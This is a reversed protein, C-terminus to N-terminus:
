YNAGGTVTVAVSLRPPPGGTLLWGASRPFAGARPWRLPEAPWCEFGFISARFEFCHWIISVWIVLVLFWKSSLFRYCDMRHATGVRRTTRTGLIIRRASRNGRDRSGRQRLPGPPRRLLACRSCGRVVGGIPLSGSSEVAGRQVAPGGGISDISRSHLTAFYVAQGWRGVLRVSGWALVPCDAGRGEHM